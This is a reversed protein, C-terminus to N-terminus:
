CQYLTIGRKRLYIFRSLLFLWVFAAGMLGAKRSFALRNLFYVAVVLAVGFWASPSRLKNVWDDGLPAVLGLWGYMGCFFLPPHTSETAINQAIQPCTIGPQYSFVDRLKELPFVVDLPISSYNKGVSFIATIVEDM